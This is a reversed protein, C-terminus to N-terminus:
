SSCTPLLDEERGRESGEERRAEGRVTSFAHAGPTAQTFLSLPLTTLIRRPVLLTYSKRGGERGEKRRRAEGRVISSAHAGPTAQTFLSLPLTTL